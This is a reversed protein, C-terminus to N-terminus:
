ERDCGGDGDATRSGLRPPPLDDCEGMHHLRVIRAPAPRGGVGRGLKERRPQNPVDGRQRSKRRGGGGRGGGGGGDGGTRRRRRM